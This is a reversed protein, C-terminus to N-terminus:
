TLNILNYDCSVNDMIQKEIKQCTFFIIQEFKSTNLVELAKRRREDDYQVFADDLFIPVKKNKFLMDIFSLRLALYLQDKAGNSLLDANFLTGSYRMKLKYDESIKVEEYQSNTLSNFINMVNNNLDPGINKRIENFSEQIVDCALNLASYEKDLKIIKEENIIKEEEIESIERKGLFRKEIIHELDKIEKETKLLENSQNRIEIDIEEESEYSYNIDQNIIQKMEEKIANIDRDKLLVKYTEEVNELANKIERLKDMKDKYEKLNIHLDVIPVNELSLNSVKKRIEKEMDILQEDINYIDKKIGITEYEFTKLIGKIEEYQAVKELVEDLSNCSLINFLSEIVGKNRTYNFELNYIEYKSIEDEKNKIMLAVNDRYTKYKDYQSLKNIFEEYTSVKIENMYFNLKEEYSEINGKLTNIMDNNQKIYQANRIELTYKLYLKILIILILISAIIIPFKQNISSYFFTLTTIIGFLYIMRLKININSLNQSNSIYSQGELKYKLEKLGDRYASLLEEIKARNQDIFELNYINDEQMTLEMQLSYISKQINAVNTLKEELNKQEIKLTYIKEKVNDGMSDFVNYDSMKENNRNIQDEIYSLKHLKENKTDLLSLYRSSKEHVEDLFEVTIYEEGKKLEESIADKEKKLEEGKILYNRIEKYDKQLKIKKIYKKYLDLKNIQEKISKKLQKKKLLNEENEVNEEGLKYAEWLETKIENNKEKLLDLEGSKRSAVLQKRRKELREIVKKVSTNEDGTNYINTIKEMIEEERDKSIIVGLQSIFLTKIFTSLNINFFYKGPENKNDIEIIEGTIEDLIECIDEKKSMGFSRKIIYNKGEYEVTLEGSIKEGSLPMYRKRENNKGRTNEIGYLWIKIFNEISSKGKENKGFVLNFGNTFEIIKGKVGAFHEINVRKIIM